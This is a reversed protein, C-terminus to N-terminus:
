LPPADVRVPGPYNTAVNAATGRGNESRFSVDHGGDVLWRGRGRGAGGIHLKPNGREGRRPRLGFLDGHGMM